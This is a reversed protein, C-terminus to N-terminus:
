EGGNTREELGREGGDEAGHIAVLKGAGVIASIDLVARAVHVGVGPM